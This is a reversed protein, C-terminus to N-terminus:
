MREPVRLTLLAAGAKLVTATTSTLSLRLARSDGEAKLIQESNYFGNFDQALQYLYNAVKHPLNERRAEELVSGFQLLTGILTRESRSLVASSAANV